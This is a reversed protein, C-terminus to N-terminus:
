LRPNSVTGELIELATYALASSPAGGTITFAPNQVSDASRQGSGSDWFHAKIHHGDCMTPAPRSLNPSTPANLFLPSGGHWATGRSEKAPEGGARHANRNGSYEGRCRGPKGARHLCRQHLVDGAAGGLHLDHVIDIGPLGNPQPGM